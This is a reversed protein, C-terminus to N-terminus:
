LIAKGGAQLLGNWMEMPSRWLIAMITWMELLRQEAIETIQEPNCLYKRLLGLSKEIARKKKKARM